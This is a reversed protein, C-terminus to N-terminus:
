MSYFDVFAAYHRYNMGKRGDQKFASIVRDREEESFANPKPDVQYRHKPLEQAMDEFPNAFIVRYKIGWKCVASLYMLEDKTRSANYSKGAKAKCTLSM